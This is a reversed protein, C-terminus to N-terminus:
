SEILNLEKLGLRHLHSNCDELTYYGSFILLQMFAIDQRTSKLENGSKRFLNYSIEMPIKNGMCIKLMVQPTPKETLGNELRYLTKVSMRANGAFEEETLKTWEHVRTLAKPFSEPLDELISVVDANRAYIQKAQEEKDANDELYLATIPIVSEKIRYAGELNYAKRSQAYYDKPYEIKFKFACEDLHNRAYDTLTKQQTLYKRDNLIFHNDTFVVLNRAMMKILKKNSRILQQALSISVTFTEGKKLAAPNYCYPMLFKGDIFLHMGRMQEYGLMLYRRKCAAITVKFFCATKELQEYITDATVKKPKLREAVLRFQREPMLAASAFMDAHREIREIFSDESCSKGSNDVQCMMFTADPDCMRILEFAFRNNVAHDLEHMLTFRCIEPKSRLNKEILITGKKVWISRYTKTKEDYEMRYCDKYVYEGRVSMDPRLAVYMVPIKMQGALYEPSIVCPMTENLPHSMGIFDAADQEIHNKDLVKVLDDTYKVPFRKHFREIRKICKIQIDNFDASFSGSLTGFLYLDNHYASIGDTSEIHAKLIIKFKVHDQANKLASYDIDDIIVSKVRVTCDDTDDEQIFRDVANKLVDFYNEEIFCRFSYSM